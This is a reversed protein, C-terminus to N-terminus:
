SWERGDLDRHPTWHGARLVCDDNPCEDFLWVYRREQISRRSVKNAIRDAGTSIARAIREVTRM